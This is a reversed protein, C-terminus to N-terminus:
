AENQRLRRQGCNHQLCLCTEYIIGQPIKYKIPYRVRTGGARRVSKVEETEICNMMVPTASM